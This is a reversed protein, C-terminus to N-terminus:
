KNILKIFDPDNRMDKFASSYRALLRNFKDIQIAKSLDRLAEKKNGQKSYASARFFYAAGTDPKMKIVKSYDAIAEDYKGINKYAGGRVYLADFYKPNLEIAKNFHYIAEKYDDKDNYIKGNEYWEISSLENISKDYRKQVIEKANGKALALKERLEKNEELLADSRRKTDELERSQNRDKRLKDISKIVDDTDAVIKTKIWYTEGNWKEDVVETRVIGATLSTIQDKTLQFNKVETISELYTGLEELLLLKVERMATVRSSNRSDDESARYSYEKIYTKTEAFASNPIFIVLLFFVLTIRTLFSKM